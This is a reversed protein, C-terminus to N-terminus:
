NLALTTMAIVHHPSPLFTETPTTPDRSYRQLATSSPPTNPPSSAFIFSDLTEPDWFVLALALISLSKENQMNEEKNTKEEM